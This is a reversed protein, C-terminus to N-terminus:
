TDGRGGRRSLDWRRFHSSHALINDPVKAELFHFKDIIRSIYLKLINHEVLAM